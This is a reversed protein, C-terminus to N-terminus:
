NCGTAISAMYAFPEKSMLSVLLGYQVYLQAATAFFSLAINFHNVKDTAEFPQDVHLHEMQM